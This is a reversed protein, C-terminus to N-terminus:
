AAGAKERQQRYVRIEQRHEQCGKAMSALEADKQDWEADTLMPTPVLVRQGNREVPYAKQLHHFDNFLDKESTRAKPSWKGILQKAHSKVFEHSISLHFDADPGDIDKREAMFDRVFADVAVPGHELRHAIETRMQGIIFKIQM